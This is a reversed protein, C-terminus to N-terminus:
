RDLVSVPHSVKKCKTTDRGTPCVQLTVEFLNPFLYVHVPNVDTSTQGDGLNWEYNNKGNGGIVTSLFTVSLSDPAQTFTFDVSVVSETPSKPCAAVILLVALLTFLYLTKKM